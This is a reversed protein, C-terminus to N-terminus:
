PIRRSISLVVHWFRWTLERNADAPSASTRRTRGDGNIQLRFPEFTLAMSSFIRTGFMRELGTAGDLVLSPALAWYTFGPKDFHFRQSPDADNREQGMSLGWTADVYVSAEVGLSTLPIRLSLVGEAYAGKLRDYDYWVTLRPAVLAVPRWELFGFVEGTNAESGRGGQGPDGFFRYRVWGAGFVLGKVRRSYVVSFDEETHGRGQVGADTLDTSDARALEINNWWEVTLYGDGLKVAAYGGPQLVPESSLTLGRWIYKASATLDGGVVIQGSAPSTTTGAVLCLALLLRAVPCRM